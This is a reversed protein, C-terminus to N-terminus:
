LSPQGHNFLFIAHHGLRTVGPWGIWRDLFIKVLDCTALVNVREQQKCHKDNPWISIGPKIDVVLCPVDKPDPSVRTAEELSDAVDDEPIFTFRDRFTSLLNEFDHVNGPTKARIDDEHKKFEELLFEPAHLHLSDLVFLRSTTGDKGTM